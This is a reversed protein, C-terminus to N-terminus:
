LEMRPEDADADDRAPLELFDWAIGDRFLTLSRSAPESAGHAFLETEVRMIGGREARDDDALASGGGSPVNGLLAWAVFAACRVTFRRAM